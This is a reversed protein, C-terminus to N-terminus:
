RKAFGRGQPLHKLKNAFDGNKQSFM